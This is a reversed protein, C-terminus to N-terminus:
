SIDKLPTGGVTGPGKGTHPQAPSPGGQVPPMANVMGKGTIPNAKDSDPPQVPAPRPDKPVTTM